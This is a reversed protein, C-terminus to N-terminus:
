EQICEMKKLDEEEIELFLGKTLDTRMLKDKSWGVLYYGGGEKCYKIKEGSSDTPIEKMNGIVQKVEPNESTLIETMTKPVKGTKQYLTGWGTALKAIGYGTQVVKTMKTTYNVGWIISYTSVSVFVITWILGAWAWKKQVNKFQDFSSYKCTNWAARNGKAGLIFPLVLQIFPIPTLILLSWWVRNSIGWVFTLFFAGWNWKGLEEELKEDKPPPSEPKQPEM